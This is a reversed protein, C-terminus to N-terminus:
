EPATRNTSGVADAFFETNGPIQVELHSDPTFRGTPRLSSCTARDPNGAGVWPVLNLITAADMTHTIADDVDVTTKASFNLKLYTRSVLGRLTGTTAGNVTLSSGTSLLWDKVAEGSEITKSEGPGIIETEAHVQAAIALMLGFSPVKIAASLPSLKFFHKIFM